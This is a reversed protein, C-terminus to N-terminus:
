KMREKLYETIMKEKVTSVTTAYFLIEELTTRNIFYHCIKYQRKANEMTRFFLSWQIECHPIYYYLSNPLDAKLIAEPFWDEIWIRAEETNSRSTMARSSLSKHMLEVHLTYGEYKKKLDVITGTYVLVGSALMGIRNCVAECEDMRQTALLITCGANSAQLLANWVFRCSAPDMKKTPEDLIILSPTGLLSIAVSLKRKTSSSYNQVMHKLLHDLDLLKSLHYICNSIQSQPIGRLNAFLLLTEEGTLFGFLADAEPCFGIKKEVQTNEKGNIYVRGHSMLLNGAIIDVIATKGANKKGVLGFTEGRSVSFMLNDIACEKKFYKTLERVVLCENSRLSNESNSSEPERMEEESPKKKILLTNLLKIMLRSFVKHEYLVIIITFIAIQVFPFVIHKGIGPSKWAFFNEEWRYCKNGCTEKCCRLEYYDSFKGNQECSMLIKENNCGQNNICNKYLNLFGQVFAYCPLFFSFLYDLNEYTNRSINPELVSISFQIVLGLMHYLFVYMYGASASQAVFSCCYVFLLGVIGHILLLFIVRALQQHQTCGYLDTVNLTLVLLACAMIYTSFDYLFTLIWYFSHSLGTVLQLKKFQKSREFVLPVIFGAMVISISFMLDQAILFSNLLSSTKKVMALRPNKIPFPHNIVEFSFASNGKTLYKLITNHVYLLSVPPSHLAKNHYFATIINSKENFDFDAALFYNKYYELPNEEAIELLHENMTEERSDLINAKHPDKFLSAFTDSLKRSEKNSPNVSYQVEFTKGSINYLELNLHLPHDPIIEDGTFTNSIIFILPLILIQSLSLSIHRISFLFKKKWLAIAQQFILVFPENREKVFLANLSDDGVGTSDDLTERAFEPMAYSGAYAKLSVNDFLETMTIQSVSYNSIKLSDKKEELETFLFQLSPAKDLPLIYKLTGNSSYLKSDSVHNKILNTVNSIKCSEDKEIFLHYGAGYLNTVFSTTGFSQLEGEDIIGMRDGIADAEEMYSTTVFITRFVKEAKLAEWVILRSYSDMHSTPNDIVVIESEGILAIGISLKRKWCASLNGAMSKRKLELDLIGLIHDIQSSLGESEFDKMKCYFYLNEEVSLHDFCIDYDPCFGLFRPIKRAENEISVNCGKITAKGSTPNYKKLLISVATSKGSGGHGLLVTIQNRYAKLFLNKVAPKSGKRFTKTLHKFEITPRLGYPEKQFYEPKLEHMGFSHIVETKPKKNGTWYVSTFPFYWPQGELYKGPFMTEIYWALLFFCVTDGLFIFLVNQMSLQLSVSGTVNLNKWQLGIGMEETKLWIGVGYGLVANPFLCFIILAFISIKQEVLVLHMYPMLSLFFVIFAACMAPTRHHFVAQIKTFQTCLMITIAACLLGFYFLSSFYWAASNMWSNVGMVKLTEKLQKEKENVIDKTLNAFPLLFGICILIVFIFKPKYYFTHQVHPPEPFRQMQIYFTEEINRTSNSNFNEMFSVAIAHQVPLFGLTM